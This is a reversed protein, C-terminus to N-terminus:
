SVARSGRTRRFVEYAVAGGGLIGVGGLAAVPDGAFGSALGCAV